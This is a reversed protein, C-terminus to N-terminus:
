DQLSVNCIHLRNEHTDDAFTFGLVFPITMAMIKMDLRVSAKRLYFFDYKIQHHIPVNRNGLVQWLGTLGPRVLLRKRQSPTYTAVINPLEPRPGVLSMTGSIISLIQPLEDLRHFRLSRGTNTVRPDEKSVPSQEYPNVNNKLTRFKLMLFSRGQKGIRRHAFFVPRGDRFLIWVAIVLMLVIAAPLLLLSVAVDFGRKRRSELYPSHVQREKIHDAM